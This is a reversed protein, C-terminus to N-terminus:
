KLSDILKTAKQINKVSSDDREDWSEPDHENWRLLTANADQLACKIIELEKKSLIM